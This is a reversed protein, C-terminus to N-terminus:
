RKFINLSQSLQPLQHILGVNLWSINKLIKLVQIRDGKGGRWTLGKM